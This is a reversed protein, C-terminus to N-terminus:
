ALAVEAARACGASRAMVGAAPVSCTMSGDLVISGRDEKLESPGARWSLIESGDDLL